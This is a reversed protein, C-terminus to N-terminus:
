SQPLRLNPAIWVSSGSRRGRHNSWSPCRGSTPGMLREQIKLSSVRSNLQKLVFAVMSFPLGLSLSLPHPLCMELLSLGHSQSLTHHSSAPAPPSGRGMIDNQNKTRTKGSNQSGAAADARLSQLINPSEEGM